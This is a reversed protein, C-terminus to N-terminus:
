RIECKKEAMCQSLFVVTCNNTTTTPTESSRPPLDQVSNPDQEDELLKVPKNPAKVEVPYTFKTWRGQMDEGETLADWLQPIAEEFDLVVSKQPAATSLTANPAPCLGVCSCCEVQLFDLCAYCKKCCSCGTPELDCDCSRLLTCKSVISACISENCAEVVSVLSTSLIFILALFYCFLLRSQRLQLFSNRRQCRIRSQLNRRVQSNSNSSDHAATATTTIAVMPRRHRWWQFSTHRNSNTNPTDKLWMKQNTSKRSTSSSMKTADLEYLSM